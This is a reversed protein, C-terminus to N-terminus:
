STSQVGFASPNEAVPSKYLMRILFRTIVVATFLSILIGFSLTVAFGRVISTGIIFLIFATLLTSVNSAWISSWARKFGTNAATELMKGKKLEEKMREFILVNADVAMGISLIIGAIGALTLVIYQNTFLFVPLKLVATFIIAYTILALAAIVGLVRYYWIMYIGVLLFGILAARLSTRLAQDGLSAEVTVQGVLHIPAPIAGTNLDQALTNAEEFNESGTIIAVGGPIETQVVPASILDGGVFIAIQKGVNKKTLEYFIKGGEEDFVIQVVPVGTLQDTTVTARRFHKGDLATDKWGTPLFSFFLNQTPLQEEMTTVANNQIKTFVDSQLTEPNEGGIVLEMYSISGGFTEADKDKRILHFGFETEIPGTIDGEPLDWAAEEFSPTMDGKAFADLKGGDAGSPGDSFERALADFDEGDDIRRILDRAIQHARDSTRTVSQDARVAGSYAILIHSAEIKETSPTYETVLIVGHKGEDNQAKVLSGPGIEGALAESYGEDLDAPNDNEFERLTIAVESEALFEIASIPDAFTREAEVKEGTVKILMIGRNEITRDGQTISDLSVERMLIPDDPSRNWVDALSEPLESKFAPMEENYSVGLTPGLDEGVTQLTEGSETMRKYATEALARMKAIQAEDEGEFEEKFELLITKGVTSICKQVEVVGPCEILLHRENGYYSPTIIAESVGLSNVRRELVTRIAEVVNRKQFEINSIQARKDDIEGQLGNTEELTAIEMNLESIQKDMEAESIRFDLQTGGQLDLGLHLTPQLWGPAWQKVGDPMATVVIWLAILITLAPYGYTRAKSEM